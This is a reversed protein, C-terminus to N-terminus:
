RSWHSALFAEVEFLNCKRLKACNIEFKTYPPAVTQMCRCPESFPQCVFRPCVFCENAM